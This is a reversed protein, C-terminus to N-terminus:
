DGPRLVERHRLPASVWAAARSAAYGLVAAAAHDALDEPTFTATLALGLLLVPLTLVDPLLWHRADIWGLALLWWGLLCDLWALLVGDVVLAIAAIALAALEVGPYFWGLRHGCHRCRGRAALWSVLPVLDRPALRAGCAECASRASMMIPRGEPLRRIVTGLFSGIFVSLLLLLWGPIGVGAVRDALQAM